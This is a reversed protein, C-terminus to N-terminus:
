ENKPPYVIEHDSQVKAISDLDTQGEKNLVLEYLRVMLDAHEEKFAYKCVNLAITFYKVKQDHTM